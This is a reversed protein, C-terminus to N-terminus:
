LISKLLPIMKLIWMFYHSFFTFDSKGFSIWIYDSCWVIGIGMSVISILIFFLWVCLFLWLWILEGPVKELVEFDPYDWHVYVPRSFLIFVCKQTININWLICVEISFAIAVWELVIAQFIMGHLSPGPPSCDVPDSPTPGSQAVESESKVKMCQLLFQCGVGINKGPSDWPCSLRTPQWRQPQVSDSV